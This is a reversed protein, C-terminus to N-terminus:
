TEFAELSELANEATAQNFGKIEVSYIYYVIITFFIM